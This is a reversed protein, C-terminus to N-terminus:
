TQYPSFFIQTKRNDNGSFTCGSIPIKMGQFDTRGEYKKGCGAKVYALTVHPIYEPHTDTHEFTESIKKNLAHLEPSIVEIKVVDGEDNSFLSIPGLEIMFPKQGFLFSRIEYPDHEHLGYKVTVHLNTERGDPALDSDPINKLSWAYIDESFKRPIDCQVSSYDYSLVIKPLKRLVSSISYFM